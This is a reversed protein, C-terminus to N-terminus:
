RSCTRQCRASCRQCYDISSAQPQSDGAGAPGATGEARMLQYISRGASTRGNLRTRLSPSLKHPQSLTTIMMLVIHAAPGSGTNHEYSSKKQLICMNYLRYKDIVYHANKLGIKQILSYNKSVKYKFTAFPAVFWHFM